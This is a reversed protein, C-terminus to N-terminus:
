TYIKFKKRKLQFQETSDVLIDELVNRLIWKMPLLVTVLPTLTPNRLVVGYGAWYLVFLLQANRTEDINCLRGEM